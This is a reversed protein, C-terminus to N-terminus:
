HFSSYPEALPANRLAPSEYPGSQSPYYSYPQSSLHNHPINLGSQEVKEPQPEGQAPIVIQVREPTQVGFEYEVAGYDELDLLNVGQKISVAPYTIGIVILGCASTYVSIRKVAHILSTGDDRHIRKRRVSQRWVLWAAAALMAPGIILLITGFPLPMPYVILYAYLLSGLSLTQVPVVLGVEAAARRKTRSAATHQNAPILRVLAILRPLTLLMVAAYPVIVFPIFLFDTNKWLYSSHLSISVTLMLLMIAAILGTIAVLAINAVAARRMGAATTRYAISGAGYGATLTLLVLALAAMAVAWDLTELM